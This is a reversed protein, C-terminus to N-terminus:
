HGAPRPITQLKDQGARHHPRLAPPAGLRHPMGFQREARGVIEGFYDPDKGASYWLFDARSVQLDNDFRREQLLSVKLAQRRDPIGSRELRGSTPPNNPVVPRRDLSM